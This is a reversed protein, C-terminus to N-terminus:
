SSRLSPDRGKRRFRGRRLRGPRLLLVCLPQKNSTPFSMVEALGLRVGALVRGRPDSREPHGSLAM